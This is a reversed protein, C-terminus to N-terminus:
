TSFSWGSPWSRGQGALRETAGLPFLLGPFLHGSLRWFVNTWITPTPHTTLSSSLDLCPCLQPQPNPALASCPPTGSFDPAQLEALCLQGPCITAPSLVPAEMGHVVSHTIFSISVRSRSHHKLSPGSCPHLLLSSPHECLSKLDEWAGTHRLAPSSSLM